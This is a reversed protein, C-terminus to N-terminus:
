WIDEGHMAMIPEKIKRQWIDECYMVMMCGWRLGDDYQWRANMMESGWWVDDDYMTVTRVDDGYIKTM